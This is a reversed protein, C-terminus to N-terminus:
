NKEKHLEHSNIKEGTHRIVFIVNSTLSTNDILEYHLFNFKDLTNKIREASSFHLTKGKTKNFGSNTSFFETYRTGLHRRKKDADADRLIMVGGPNLKHICREIVRVQEEPSLYHL